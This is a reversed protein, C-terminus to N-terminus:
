IIHMPCVIAVNNSGHSLIISDYIYKWLKTTYMISGKRIYTSVKTHTNIGGCMAAQIPMHLMNILNLDRNPLLSM